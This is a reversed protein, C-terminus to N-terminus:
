EVSPMTPTSSIGVYVAQDSFKYKLYADKVTPDDMKDGAIEGNSYKGNNTMELRLRTSFHTDGLKNDYTFYIRRFWFGNTDELDEHHNGIFYYYDGFMYGSIKGEALVDGASLLILVFLIIAPIMKM